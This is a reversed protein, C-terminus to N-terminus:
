LQVTYFPKKKKIKQQNINLKLLIHLIIAAEVSNLM